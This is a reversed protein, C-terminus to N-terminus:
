APVEAHADRFVKLAAALTDTSARVMLLGEGEIEAEAWPHSEHGAAAIVIVARHAGVLRAAEAVIATPDTPILTPPFGPCAETDSSWVQRLPLSPDSEQSAMAFRQLAGRCEPTMSALVAKAAPTM